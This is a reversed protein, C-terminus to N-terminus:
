FTKGQDSLGSSRDNYSSRVDRLDLSMKQIKKAIKKQLNRRFIVSNRVFIKRIFMQKAIIESVRKLKLHSM